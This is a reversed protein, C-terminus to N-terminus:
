LADYEQETVPGLWENSGGEAPIEVALHAFWSDKAAGHWHKIGPAVHVVDGALLEKAPKGEEQYWGHGGTVLLIQGGQHHIHWYNRCGPEFTVNFVSVGEKNLLELYSTGTFYAAYGDNKDGRSFIGKGNFVGQSLEKPILANFDTKM